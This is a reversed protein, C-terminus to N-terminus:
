NGNQLLNSKEQLIHGFGNVTRIKGAGRENKLAPSNM